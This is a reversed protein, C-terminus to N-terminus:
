QTGGNGDHWALFADFAARCNLDNQSPQRTQGDSGVWPQPTWGKALGWFRKRAVEDSAQVKTYLSGITDANQLYEAKKSGAPPVTVMVSAWPQTSWDDGAPAPADEVPPADDDTLINETQAKVWDQIKGLLERIGPGTTPVHSLPWNTLPEGHLLIRQTVAWLQLTGEPFAAILKAIMWERTKVTAGGLVKESTSPQSTANQQPKPTTQGSVTNGAPAPPASPARGANQVYPTSHAPAGTRQRQQWGAGFDKKWAQLGVGFNKACRRFAATMAGEAADGYNQSDNNPYYTMDGIAEGVYCGRVLLAAEAYIRTAQTGKATRYEEAWHPRTRLMAWKGRGFVSNFRDRLFAHEIYILHEKGSAGPKFAEDPFEASLKEDEEPTLELTSARQYAAHLLTSVAEVRAQAPTQQGAPPAQYAEVDGGPPKWQEVNQNENM